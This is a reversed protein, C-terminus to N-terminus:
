TMQPDPWLPPRVVVQSGGVCCHGEFTHDLEDRLLLGTPRMTLVSRAWTDPAQLEREVIFTEPALASNRIVWLIPQARGRRRRQWGVIAFSQQVGRDRPGLRHFAAQAATRVDEVAHYLDKDPQGSVTLSIAGESLDRDTLKEALWQDTPIGDLYARGSVGISVLADTAQYIVNKNMAPNFRRTTGGTATTALRDSVQIAHGQMIASLHLTMTLDGLGGNSQKSDNPM